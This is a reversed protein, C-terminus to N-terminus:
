RISKLWQAEEQIAKSSYENIAPILIQDRVIKLSQALAQDEEELDAIELEVWEIVHKVADYLMLPSDPKRLNKPPQSELGRMEREIAACRIAENMMEAVTTIIEHRNREEDSMAKDRNGYEGWGWDRIVAVAELPLTFSVQRGNTNILQPDDM